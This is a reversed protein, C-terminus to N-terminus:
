ATTGTSGRVVGSITTSARKTCVLVKNSFKAWYMRGQLSVSVSIASKPDCSAKSFNGIDVVGLAASAHGRPPLVVTKGYDRVGKNVVAARLGVNLGGMSNIATSTQVVPVGTLTCARSTENTFVLPFYVTGATGDAQGISMALAGTSCRATTSAGSRAMAGGGFIVLGAIVSVLLVLALLLRPRTTHLASKM